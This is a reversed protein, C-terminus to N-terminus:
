LGGHAVTQMGDFLLKAPPQQEAMVTQVRILQYHRVVKNGIHETHPAFTDRQSGLFQRLL